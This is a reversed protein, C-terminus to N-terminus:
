LGAAVGHKRFSGARERNMLLRPTPWRVMDPLAAFLFLKLSTGMVLLLECEAADEFYHLDYADALPESLFFSTSRM